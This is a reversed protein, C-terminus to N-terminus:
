REKQEQFDGRNRSVLFWRFWAFMAVMHSLEEDPIPGSGEAAAV